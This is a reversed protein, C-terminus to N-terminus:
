ANSDHELRPDTERIIKTVSAKNFGKFGYDRQLNELHSGYFGYDIFRKYQEQDIIGERLAQDLREKKPYWIEPETFAQKLFEFNSFPPMMKIGYKPLDENLKNFDFRAELHHMGAELISEGNIYTWLGVTGKAKEEELRKHAYDIDVEDEFLDIDTFIVIECVKHELIQAGWGAKAGAYYRERTEYGMLEFLNVLDKLLHRSSRFTHHDHNGWGLGLSDQREKQVQGARNKRQWYAREARFFADAVRANDLKSTFSMVLEKTRKLGEDRDEFFRDRAYFARLAELYEERDDKEQVVFSNSGRREIASLLYGGEKSIYAKRIRNFPKGEAKIGKGCYQLFDDISDVKICVETYDKKTILIPFLISRDNKYVAVIDDNVIAKKEKYGMRILDDRDIKSEPIVIHDVWDFFRTSTKNYMLDSLEKSFRNRSLFEEIIGKSFSDAEKYLEWDFEKEEM